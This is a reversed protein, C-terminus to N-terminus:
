RRHPRHCRQAASPLRRGRLASGRLWGQRSGMVKGVGLDPGRRGRSAAPFRDAGRPPPPAARDQRAEVGGGGGRGSPRARAGPRAADRSRRRSHPPAPACSNGASPAPADEPVRRGMPQPPAGPRVHGAPCYRAAPPPPRPRAPGPAPPPISSRRGRGHPSHPPPPPEGPGGREPPLPPRALRPPERLRHYPPPPAPFPSSLPKTAVFGPQSFPSDARLPPSGRAQPSPRAPLTPSTGRSAGLELGGLRGRAWLRRPATNRGAARAGPRPSASPSAPPLAAGARRASTGDPPPSACGAPPLLREKNSVAAATAASGCRTRGRTPFPPRPHRRAPRALPARPCRQAKLACPSGSVEAELGVTQSEASDDECFQESRLLLNFKDLQVQRKHVRASLAQDGAQGAHYMLNDQM